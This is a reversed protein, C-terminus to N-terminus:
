DKRKVDKPGLSSNAPAVPLHFYDPDRTLEHALRDIADLVEGAARYEPSHIKAQTRVRVAGKRGTEVEELSATVNV